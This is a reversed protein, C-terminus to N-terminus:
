GQDRLFFRDLSCLSFLIRKICILCNVGSGYSIGCQVSKSKGRLIRYLNWGFIFLHRTVVFNLAQQINTYRCTTTKNYHQHFKYREHRSPPLFFPLLWCFFLNFHFASEYNHMIIVDLTQAKGERLIHASYQVRVPIHTHYTTFHFQKFFLKELYRGPTM